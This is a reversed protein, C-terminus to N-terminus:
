PNFGMRQLFIKASGGIFMDLGHDTKNSFPTKENRVGPIVEKLSLFFM